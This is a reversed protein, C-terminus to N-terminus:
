AASEKFIDEFKAFHEQLALGIPTDLIPERDEILPLYPELDPLDEVILQRESLTEYM